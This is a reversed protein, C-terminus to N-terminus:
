DKLIDYPLIFVKTVIELYNCCHGWQFLKLVMLICMNNNSPGWLLELMQQFFLKFSQIFCFDNQFLDIILTWEHKAEKM